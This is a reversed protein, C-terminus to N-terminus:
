DMTLFLDEIILNKILGDGGGMGGGGGNNSFNENIM